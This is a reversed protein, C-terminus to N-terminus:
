TLLMVRRARERAQSMQIYEARRGVHRAAPAEIGARELLRYMGDRESQSFESLSALLHDIAERAGSSCRAVPEDSTETAQLSRVVDQDIWRIAQQIRSRTYQTPERGHRLIMKTLVSVVTHDDHWEFADLERAIRQCVEQYNRREGLDDAFKGVEQMAQWTRTGITEQRM